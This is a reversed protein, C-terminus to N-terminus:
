TSEARTAAQGGGGQESRKTTFQGIAEGESDYAEISMTFGQSEFRRLIAQIKSIVLEDDGALGGNLLYSPTTDDSMPYGAFDADDSDVHLTKAGNYGSKYIWVKANPFEQKLVTEALEVNVPADITSYVNNSEPLKNSM